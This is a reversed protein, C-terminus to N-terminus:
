AASRMAALIGFVGLCISGFWPWRAGQMVISMTAVAISVHLLTAAFTLTHLRQEHHESSALKEEVQKELEKAKESILRSDAENKKATDAFAQANPGGNAAAIEYMNKKLSKSQFFGWQDTAQNQVLSAATRDGVTAAEEISELADVRMGVDARRVGLNNLADPLQCLRLNHCAFLVKQQAPLELSVSRNLCAKAAILSNKNRM